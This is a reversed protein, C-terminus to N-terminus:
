TQTGEPQPQDRTMDAIADAVAFLATGIRDLADVINAPELNSDSVNPSTFNDRIAQAIPHDTMRQALAPHVPRPM